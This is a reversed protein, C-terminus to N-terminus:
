IHWKYNMKKEVDNFNRNNKTIFKKAVKKNKFIVISRNSFYKKLTKLIKLSKVDKKMTKENKTENNLIRKKKRQHKKNNNNKINNFYKYRLEFSKSDFDNNQLMKNNQKTSATTNKIITFYLVSCINYARKVKKMKKQKVSCMKAWVQHKTQECNICKHTIKMENKSCRNTEHNKVCHDCKMFNKCTKEIHDYEYCNFCQTIRCNRFFIVANKKSKKKLFEEIIIKNIEKSFKTEIILSSYTKKMKEVSKSWTMKIINLNKHFMKNQKLLKEITKKQKKANM